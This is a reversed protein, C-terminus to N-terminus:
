DPNENTILTSENDNNSKIARILNLVGDPTNEITDLSTIYKEIFEESYYAGSTLDEVTMLAFKAQAGHDFHIPPFLSGNLVTPTYSNEDAYFKLAQKMLEIINNAQDIDVIQKNTEM